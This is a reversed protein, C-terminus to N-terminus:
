LPSEPMFRQTPSPTMPSLRMLIPRARAAEAVRQLEKWEDRNGFHGGEPRGSCRRKTGAVSIELTSNKRRFTALPRGADDKVEPPLLVQFKTREPFPGEFSVADVVPSTAADIGKPRHAEGDERRLRLQSALGAAIPASFRVHMAHLPLCGSEANVRDCEFRATFRPRTKFALAQDQVTAVETLSRIGTGWVLQV